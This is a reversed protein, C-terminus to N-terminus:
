SKCNIKEKIEQLLKNQKEQLDIGYRGFHTSFQINLFDIVKGMYHVQIFGVIALLIISPIFMAVLLLPNNMKLTYYLGIIVFFVNRLENFIGIGKSIYFWIRICLNKRGSYYDLKDQEKIEM